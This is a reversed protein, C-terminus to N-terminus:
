QRRPRQPRNEGDKLPVLVVGCFLYAQEPTRGYLKAFAQEIDPHDQTWGHFRCNKPVKSIPTIVM